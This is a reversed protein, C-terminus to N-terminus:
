MNLLINIGVDYTLSGTARVVSLEGAASATITVTNTGDNYITETDGNYITLFGGSAKGSSPNIMYALVAGVAM